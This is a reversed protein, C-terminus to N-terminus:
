TTTLAQVMATGFSIDNSTPVRTYTGGTRETVSRLTDTDEAGIVIVDVRVPAAPDGAATLDALLQAGTLASDDEPGDTILLVSNTRGSTYGSVAARYAALLAPYCQDARLDSPRITNLSATVETRHEAALPATAAQVRYPTTGDLNKGFTWVGLGFDPPMVNMTSRLAGLTNTLRTTSGDTGAMSASVDLLVTASVGLVPDDLTARVKDLAARTPVAATTAPAPGFGAAAFVAAQQPARLYDVFVGAARNQATDVWHGTMMAAPYDAVPAAGAPVFATLGGHANIQQETAAVAHLAAAAPPASTLAGLASRTDAVEPASTALASVAAVVQGSRAAEETLPETGSVGSAVATAAALTADGPPMAMALGGWPLQLEDLSSRQLRPLDAWAIGARQLAAGLEGPVALAIPTVAVSAPTGQILGPVRVSEIQRMSEPIWLAPQPGLAPDWPANATFTAVVASAPRGQVAVTVCHDGVIPETANYRDAITRVPAEISPDVTVNLVTDGEVCEAAAASSDSSSRDRLQFWGFVAGVLLLVAVVAIVPGKSIGRSRSHSRHTGM